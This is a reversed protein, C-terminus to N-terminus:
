VEDIFGTSFNLANWTPIKSLIWFYSLMHLTKYGIRVRNILFEWYHITQFSNFSIQSSTFRTPARTLATWLEMTSASSWRWLTPSIRHRWLSRSARSRSSEKARQWWVQVAETPRQHLDTQNTRDPASAQRATKTKQCKRWRPAVTQEETLRRELLKEEPALQTGFVPARRLPTLSVHARCCLRSHCTTCHSRAPAWRELESREPPARKAVAELQTLVCAPRRPPRVARLPRLDASAKLAAPCHAATAPQHRYGSPQPHPPIRTLYGM